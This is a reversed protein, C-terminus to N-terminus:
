ILFAMQCKDIKVFNTNNDIKDNLFQFTFVKNTETKEPRLNKQPFLLFYKVRVYYNKVFDCFTSDFTMKKIFNLGM